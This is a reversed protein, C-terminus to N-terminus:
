NSCRHIVSKTISKVNCLISVLRKKKTVKKKEGDMGENDSVMEEQEYSGEEDTVAIELEYVDDPYPEFWHNKDITPHELTVKSSLEEISEKIQDRAEEFLSKQSKQHPTTSHLNSAQEKLSESTITKVGPMNRRKKSSSIIKRKPTIVEEHVMGTHAKSKIPTVLGGVISKLQSDVQGEFVESKNEQSQLPIKLEEFAKAHDKSKLWILIAEVNYACYKSQFEM